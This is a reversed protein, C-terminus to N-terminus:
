NWQYELNEQPMGTEPNRTGAEQNTLPTRLQGNGRLGRPNTQQGKCISNLFSVPIKMSQYRALYVTNRRLMCIVRGWAM